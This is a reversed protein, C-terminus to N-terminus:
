RRSAQRRPPWRAARCPVRPDLHPVLERGAELTQPLPLSRSVLKGQLRLGALVTPASLLCVFSYSARAGTSSCCRMCGRGARLQQRAPRREPSFAEKLSVSRWLELGSGPAPTVIIEQAEQRWLAAGPASGDDGNLALHHSIWSAQLQRVPASVRMSPPTM